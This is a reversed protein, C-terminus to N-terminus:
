PTVAPGLAPGCQADDVAIDAARLRGCLRACVLRAYAVPQLPQRGARAARDRLVTEALDGLVYAPDCVSDDRLQTQHAYCLGHMREHVLTNALSEADRKLRDVNLFTEDTCRTTVAFAAAGGFIPNRPILPTNLFSGRASLAALIAAGELPPATGRRCTKCDFDEATFSLLVRRFGPDELVQDALQAAQQLKQQQAATYHGAATDPLGTPSCGAVPLLCLM